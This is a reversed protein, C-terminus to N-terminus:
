TEDQDVRFNKRLPYDGEEWDDSLILRKPNPHNRFAVGFLDYIEREVFEAGPIIDAITEVMLNTKLVDTRLNVELGEEDIAFHYILEIFSSHEVSSITSFRANFTNIMIKAAKRNGEASIRIWIGKKKNSPRLEYEIFHNGLEEKLKKEIRDEM